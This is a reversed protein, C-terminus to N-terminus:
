WIWHGHLIMSISFSVTKPIIHHDKNILVQGITSPSGKNLQVAVKHDGKANTLQQRDLHFADNHYYMKTQTSPVAAQAIGSKDHAKDVFAHAHDRM